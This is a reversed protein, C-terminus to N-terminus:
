YHPDDLGAMVRAAHRTHGEKLLERYRQYVKAGENHGMMYYPQDRLENDPKRGSTAHTYGTNYFDTM